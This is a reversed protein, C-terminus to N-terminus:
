IISSLSSDTDWSVCGSNPCLYRRIHCTVFLTLFRSFRSIGGRRRLKLGFEPQSKNPVLAFNGFGLEPCRGEPPQAMMRTGSQHVLHTPRAIFAPLPLPPRAIATIRPPLLPTPPIHPYHTCSRYATLNSTPTSQSKM